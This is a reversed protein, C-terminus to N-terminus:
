IKRSRGEYRQCVPQEPDLIKYRIKKLKFELEFEFENSLGAMQVHM